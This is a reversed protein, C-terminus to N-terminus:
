HDANKTGPTYPRDDQGIGRTQYAALFALCCAAHYLHSCATEEDYDEGAWWLNLHRQLAAYYRSWDAGKAWNNPAYKRTGFELVEAMGWLFEPPILDFRPKDVDNKIFENEM